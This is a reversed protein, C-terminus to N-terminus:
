TAGLTVVDGGHLGRRWASAPMPRKGSPQVELLELAGQGCRVTTGALTGAAADAAADAEADSDPEDVAAADLIGLRVGAMTTWARGLRVIRELEAAPKTWDLEFEAPDLKPAYTSEGQQQEGAPISAVGGALVDLLLETGVVALRETLVDAHERGRHDIPLRRRALVPGTDLGAELRMICVGTDVDGALIAREVPAAGRWRPLLSFHVNIMPVVDLVSQPIIRGYAVVVGLEAELGLISKLDDTVPIGLEMAAEKVPSPVMANGRGRRKDPQSVVTAIDHGAAVLARLPEVAAEPSGLFVLRAVPLSRCASTTPTSAKTATVRTPPM